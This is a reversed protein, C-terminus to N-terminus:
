SNWKWTKGKELNGTEIYQGQYWVRFPNGLLSKIEAHVM